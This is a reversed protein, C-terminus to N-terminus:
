EQCSLTWPLDNCYVFYNARKYAKKREKLAEEHVELAREHKKVLEEEEKKECGGKTLSNFTFNQREKAREDVEARSEFVKLNAKLYVQVANHFRADSLGM